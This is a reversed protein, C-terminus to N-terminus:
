PDLIPPYPHYAASFILPTHLCLSPHTHLQLCIKLSSRSHLSPLFCCLYPLAASAYPTTLFANSDCRSPEEPAYPHYAASLILGTPPLM